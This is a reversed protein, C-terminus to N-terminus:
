TAVVKNQTMDKICHVRYENGFSLIEVSGAEIGIMWRVGQDDVIIDKPKPVIGQMVAKALRFTREFKLLISEAPLYGKKIANWLVHPVQIGFFGSPPLEAAKSLYTVTITNTWVLYDDSTDIADPWALM